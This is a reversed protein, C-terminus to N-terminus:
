NVCKNCNKRMVQFFSTKESWYCKMNVNNHKAHEYAAFPRAFCGKCFYTYMCGNCDTENPPILHYYYDSSIKKIISMYSEHIVNGFIGYEEGLMLCSRIDGTPGLVLSRWGAGCNEKKVNSLNSSDILANVFDPYLKELKIVNDYFLNIESESLTFINKGRGIELIPSLGFSTAGLEKALAATEQIRHVNRHYVNMVVRFNINKKHLKKASECVKQFTGPVGRLFDHLDPNDGDLDIQILLKDPYQSLVAVVDDSFLTGNSIISIKEFLSTSRQIIELFHPHSLPEGGTLEIVRVGYNSMQKLISLLRNKPFFNKKQPSSNRYCHICYLNCHDTLEINFHGPSFYNSSGSIKIPQNIQNNTFDLVEARYLNILFHTIDPIIQNGIGFKINIENTIEFFSKQGDCLKIIKMASPNIEIIKKTLKKTKTYSNLFIGNPQIILKTNPKFCPFIKKFNM